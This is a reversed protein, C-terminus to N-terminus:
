TTEAVKEFNCGFICFGTEDSVADAIEMDPDADEDLEVTVSKPLSDALEKDGDTDYRIDFARYKM